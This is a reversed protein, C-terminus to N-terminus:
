YCTDVREMLSNRSGAEGSVSIEFLGSMNQGLDYLIGTEGYKKIMKGNYIKKAKIPPYLMPVLEGRPAEEKSLIIATEKVVAIQTEKRADYDESGYINTYTTASEKILWNEDTGFTQVSGDKNYITLSAIAALCNGFPEYGKDLTYFHREDSTDANYWGNGVEISILNSGEQLLDTIDFTRYHIRKNYDTWSGNLVSDDPNMGNIQMEYQGVGCVSIYANKIQGSLNIDKEVYHPKSSGNSIWKGKWDSFQCIGSIFSTYDSKEVVGTEDKIEVAIEYHQHSKFNIKLM